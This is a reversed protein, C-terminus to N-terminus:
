SIGGKSNCYFEVTCSRNYEVISGKPKYWGAVTVCATRMSDTFYYDYSTQGWSGSDASTSSISTIGSFVQRELSSNYQTTFVGTISIQYTNNNATITGKKSGSSTSRESVRAMQGDFIEPPSYSDPTPISSSSANSGAINSQLASRFEEPSVWQEDAIEEMPVVRIPFGAEESIEATIALYEQYYESKEENSLTEDSAMANIPSSCLATFLLLLKLFRKM